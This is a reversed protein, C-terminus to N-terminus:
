GDKLVLGCHRCREDYYTIRDRCHPCRWRRDQERLWDDVGVERIRKLEQIVGEHHEASGEFELLVGCPFDRCEFCFELGKGEACEKIRCRSCWFIVEASKCGDCRIDEIPRGSEAAEKMLLAADKEKWARFTECSGCYLGCYGALERGLGTAEM